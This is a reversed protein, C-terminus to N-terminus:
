PLGFTISPIYSIRMRPRVSPDAADNSFFSARVPAAGERGSQLVLAQPALSDPRVQWAVLLNVVEVSLLGSDAPAVTISDFALPDRAGSSLFSGPRPGLFAAARAVDAVAADATVIRPYVGFKDAPDLTREPRQTILLTARVITVSDLLFRPIDFRLYGRRAPLGGVDIADLTGGAPSALVITYDGLADAVDPRDTPTSSRPLVVLSGATDSPLVDFRLRPAQATTASGEISFARLQVSETGLVRLGVRLPRRNVIKDLVASDSVPVRTGATDVLEAASTFTRAGILRDPRFLAAVAATATDVAATDVDYAEITVPSAPIKSGATDVRVEVTSGVLESIVVTDTASRVLIRPLSDFRLVARSDLTDGRGALLLTSEEGRVPYGSVTTDLVVADITTDRVPVNQEPCLAPCAAGSEIDEGCGALLAAGLLAAALTLIPKRSAPL